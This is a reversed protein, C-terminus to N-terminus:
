ADALFYQVTKVEGSRLTYTNSGLIMRPTVPDMMGTEERLERLATEAPTEAGQAQGKPIEYRPSRRRIVLAEWKGQADHDRVLVCGYSRHVDMDVTRRKSPRRQRPRRERLKASSGRRRVCSCAHHYTINLPFPNHHLLLAITIIPAAIISGM